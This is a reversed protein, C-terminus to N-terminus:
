GRQRLVICSLNDPAGETRAAELLRNALTEVPAGTALLDRIHGQQVVGHLGDSSLLLVDGDNLDIESTHVAVDNQSGAAQTLVNRLPHNAYETGSQGRQLIESIWTDDVTLQRFDGERFLYVRSDGVNAVAARREHILVAAITTGMGAYEPKEEARRWVQRNALRIGTVLRNSDISLDFSYGFPWTIDSREHSSELYYRLTSVALEAALEGHRHGGMGDAVVYFGLRDEILFRDQNETRVCGTDTFGYSEITPQRFPQM